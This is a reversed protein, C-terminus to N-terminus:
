AYPPPEKHEVSGGYTFEAPGVRKTKHISAKGTLASRDKLNDLTEPALWRMLWMPIPIRISLKM